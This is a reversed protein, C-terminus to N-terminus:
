FFEKCYFTHPDTIQVGDGKGTEVGQYLKSVAEDLKPKCEFDLFEALCDRFVQLVEVVRKNSLNYSLLKNELERELKVPIVSNLTEELVESLKGSEAIEYIDMIDVADISGLANNVCAGNQYYKCWRCTHYMDELGTNSM